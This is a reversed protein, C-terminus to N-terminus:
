KSKDRYRRYTMVQKKKLVITVMIIVDLLIQKNMRNRMCAIYMGIDGDDDDADGDYPKTKVCAM